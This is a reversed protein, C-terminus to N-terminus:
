SGPVGARAAVTDVLARGPGDQTLARRAAQWDRSAQATEGLVMRSRILRAWGQADSPDERLRAALGDVMRDIMAQQEDEPLRSAADIASPAVQPFDAGAEAVAPRAIRNSVDIGLEDATTGIEDVVEPMWAADSPGDNALAIWRDLAESVRGRQALHKGVFYRARPEQPDIALARDFAAKAEKTVTGKATAVLAEGYGSHVTADDPLLEMARRYPALAEHPRATMLYSWGLMRYGAGDDPNQTLRASLSAIMTDVDALDRQPSALSIPAAGAPPPDVHEAPRLLGTIALAALIAAVALLIKAPLSAQRLAPPNGSADGGEPVTTVNSTSAIYRQWLVVSAIGFAIGALGILIIQTM